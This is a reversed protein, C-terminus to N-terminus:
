FILCLIIIVQIKFFSIHTKQSRLQTNKRKKFEEVAFNFCEKTFLLNKKNFFHCVSKKVLKKSLNNNKTIKAFIYIM